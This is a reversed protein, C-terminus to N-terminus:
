RGSMKAALQPLGKRVKLAFLTGGIGAALADVTFGVAFILGMSTAVGSAGSSSAGLASAAAGFAKAIVEYYFIGIALGVLAFAGINRAAGTSTFHVSAAAGAFVLVFYIAAYVKPSLPGAIHPVAYTVGIVLALTAAAFAFVFNPSLKSEISM